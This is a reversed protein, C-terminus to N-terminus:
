AGGCYVPPAEMDEAGTGGIYVGLLAGVVELTEGTMVVLLLSVAAGDVDAM